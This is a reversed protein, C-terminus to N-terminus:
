HNNKGAHMLMRVAGSFTNAEPALRQIWAAVAVLIVISALAQKWTNELLKRKWNGLVYSGSLRRVVVGAFAAEFAAELLLPAGGAAFFLGGVIFGVMLMALMILCGEGDLGGLFGDAWNGSTSQHHPEPKAFDIWIRVALFFCGYAFLFAIAYRWPISRAWFHSRAFFHLLFASCGWAAGWAGGFILTFQSILPAQQIRRAIFSRKEQEYRRRDWNTM